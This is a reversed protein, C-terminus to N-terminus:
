ISTDVTELIGDQGKSGIATLDQKSSGCFSKKRTTLLTNTQRRALTIFSIEFEDNTHKTHTHKRRYTHVYEYLVYSDRCSARM